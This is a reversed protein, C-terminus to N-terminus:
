LPAAGRPASHVGHFGGSIKRIIIGPARAFVFLNERFGFALRVESAQPRQEGTYDSAAVHQLNRAARAVPRWEDTSRGPGDEGRVDVLLDQFNGPVLSIRVVIGCELDGVGVR